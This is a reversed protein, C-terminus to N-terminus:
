HLLFFLFLNEHRQRNLPVSDGSDYTIFARLMLPPGSFYDDGFFSLVAAGMFNVDYHNENSFFFHEETPLM